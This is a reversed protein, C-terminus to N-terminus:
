KNEDHIEELNEIILSTMELDNNKTCWAGNNNYGLNEKTIKFKIKYLYRNELFDKIFIKIEPVNDKGDIIYKFGEIDFTENKNILINKQKCEENNITIKEIIFNSNDSNLFRIPYMYFIEDNNNLPRTLIEDHTFSKSTKIVFRSKENLKLYKNSNGSFYPKYKLNEKIKENAVDEERIKEQNKITWAVGCLTILGGVLCSYITIFYDFAQSQLGIWNIYVPFTFITTTILVTIILVQTLIPLYKKKVLKEKKILFKNIFYILIFVYSFGVGIQVCVWSKSIFSLLFGILYIVLNIALLIDIVLNKSIGQILDFSKAFFVVLCVFSIFATWFVDKIGWLDFNFYHIISMCWIFLFFIITIIFKFKQAKKEKINFVIMLVLLLLSMMTGILMIIKPITNVEKFNFVIPSITAIFLVLFTFFSLSSLFFELMKGNVNNKKIEKKNIKNVKNRM